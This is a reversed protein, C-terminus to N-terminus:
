RRARRALSLALLARTQAQLEPSRPDSRLAARFYGIAADDDGRRSAILGLNFNAPWFTPSHVLARRFHTEAVDANGRWQLLCGLNVLAEACDDPSDRIAAVFQEEAEDQRGREILLM